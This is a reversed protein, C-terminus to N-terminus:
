ASASRGPKVRDNSSAVRRMFNKGVPSGLWQIVTAAVMVDHDSVAGRRNYEGLLYELTNSEDNEAQWADHLAKEAPNSSLRHMSKGNHKM